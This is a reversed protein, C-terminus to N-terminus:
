DRAGDRRAARTGDGSFQVSVGAAAGSKGIADSSVANVLTLTDIVANPDNIAISNTFLAPYRYFGAIQQGKPQRTEPLERGLTARDSQRM